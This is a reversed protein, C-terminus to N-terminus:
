SLFSIPIGWDKLRQEAVEPDGNGLGKCCLLVHRYIEAREESTFSEKKGDGLKEWIQRKMKAFKKWGTNKKVAENTTAM